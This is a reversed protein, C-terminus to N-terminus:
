ESHWSNRMRLWTRLFILVMALGCGALTPGVPAHFLGVVVVAVTLACALVLRQQKLAELVKSDKTSNSGRM